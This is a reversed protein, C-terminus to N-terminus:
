ILIMTVYKTFVMRGAEVNLESHYFSTPMGEMEIEFLPRNYVKEGFKHKVIKFHHSKAMRLPFDSLLQNRVVPDRELRQTVLRVFARDILTSGIGVGKAAAVQSMRPFAADASEARMLALDTTGGGADVMLFVSGPKFAQEILPM